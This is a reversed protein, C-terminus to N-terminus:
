KRGLNCYHRWLLDNYHFFAAVTVLPSFDGQDIVIIGGQSQIKSAGSQILEMLSTAFWIGYLLIM